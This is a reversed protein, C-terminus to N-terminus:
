NGFLFKMSCSLPIEHPKGWHISLAVVISLSTTIPIYSVSIKAPNSLKLLMAATEFVMKEEDDDSIKEKM